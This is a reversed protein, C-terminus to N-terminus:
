LRCRWCVGEAEHEGLCKPCEFSVPRSPVVPQPPATGLRSLTQPERGSDDTLPRGVLQAADAGGGEDDRYDPHGFFFDHNERSRLADTDVVYFDDFDTM